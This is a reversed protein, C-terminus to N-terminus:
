EVREEAQVGAVTSIDPSFGTGVDDPVAMWGEEDLRDAPDFYPDVFPNGTADWEILFGNDLSAV